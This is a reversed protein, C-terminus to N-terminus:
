AKSLYPSPPQMLPMLHIYSFLFGQLINHKKFNITENNKIHKSTLLCPHHKQAIATLKKKLLLSGFCM